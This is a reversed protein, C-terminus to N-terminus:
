IYFSYYLLIFSSIFLLLLLIWQSPKSNDCILYIITNLTKIFLFIVDPKSTNKLLSNSYNTKNGKTIDFFISQSIYTFFFLMLGFIISLVFNIYFLIGKWCDVEKIINNKKNNCDFVILLHFLIPTYLINTACILYYIILLIFKKIEKENILNLHVHFILFYIM